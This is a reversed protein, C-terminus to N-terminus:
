QLYMDGHCKFFTNVEKEQSASQWDIEKSPILPWNQVTKGVVM